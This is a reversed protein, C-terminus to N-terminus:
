NYLRTVIKLEDRGIFNCVEKEREGLSFGERKKWGASLSYNEEM